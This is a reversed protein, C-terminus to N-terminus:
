SIGEGLNSGIYSNCGVSMDLAVSAMWVQITFSSRATSVIFGNVQPM